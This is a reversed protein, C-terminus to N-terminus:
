VSDGIIEDICTNYGDAYDDDGGFDIIHKPMPKLPCWDPKEM